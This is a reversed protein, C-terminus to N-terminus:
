PRSTVALADRLLEKARAYRSRATAAPIGVIEAADVLSFGEGHM